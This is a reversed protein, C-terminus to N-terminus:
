VTSFPQLQFCFHLFNITSCVMTAINAAVATIGAAVAAIPNDSGLASDSSDVKTRKVPAPFSDTESDSDDASQHLSDISTSPQNEKDGHVQGLSVESINLNKGEDIRKMISEAVKEQSAVEEATGLFWVKGEFLGSPCRVTVKDGKTLGLREVLYLNHIASSRYDLLLYSNDQAFRIIFARDRNEFEKFGKNLHQSSFLCM